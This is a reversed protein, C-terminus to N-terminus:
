IHILSLITVRYKGPAIDTVDRSSELQYTGDAQTKGLAIRGNADLPTFQIMAESLPEGGLTVTGTVRNSGEGCGATSLVVFVLILCAVGPPKLFATPLRFAKNM